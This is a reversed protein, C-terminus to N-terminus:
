RLERTRFQKRPLRHIGGIWSVTVTTEARLNASGGSGHQEFKLRCPVQLKSHWQGYLHRGARAIPFGRPKQARNTL